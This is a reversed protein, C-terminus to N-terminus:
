SCIQKGHFLLWETALINKVITLEAHGLHFAKANAKSVVIYNM